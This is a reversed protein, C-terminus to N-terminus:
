VHARGIEMHSTRDQITMYPQDVVKVRNLWKIHLRGGWGPLILRLPYGQELRLPEGNQAWAVLADDMGKELPVSSSHNSPDNAAALLWNAGKKVGAEKLLLSLQVGTWESCSTLGHAEQITKAKETSKPNSNANCELFYVRSVSPLRQVEALTLLLPHEVLGHIMLTHQAPDINMLVGKEHNVYYHLSSPTIIGQSDQLPTAGQTGTGIRHSKVFHSLEGQPRLGTARIIEPKTTVDAGPAVAPAVAGAALGGVLAASGKLFQRRGSQKPNM